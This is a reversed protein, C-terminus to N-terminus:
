ILNLVSDLQSKTKARKLFRVFLLLAFGKLFNSNKEMPGYVSMSKSGIKKCIKTEKEM